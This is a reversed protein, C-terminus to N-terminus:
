TFELQEIKINKGEQAWVISFQVVLKSTRPGTVGINTNIM